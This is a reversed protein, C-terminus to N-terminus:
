SDELRNHLDQCARSLQRRGRELLLAGVATTVVAPDVHTHVVLLGRCRAGLQDVIPNVSISGFSRALERNADDPLEDYKNAAINVRGSFDALDKNWWLCPEAKSFCEGFLEHHLPIKQLPAPVHKLALSMTPVLSRRRLLPRRFALAVEVSEVYVEIRWLGHDQGTLDGLDSLLDLLRNLVHGYHQSMRRTNSHDRIWSIMSHTVAFVAISIVVVTRVSNSLLLSSVTLAVTLLVASPHGLALDWGATRKM